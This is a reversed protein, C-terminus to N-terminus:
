NFLRDELLIGWGMFNYTVRDAMIICYYNSTYGLGFKVIGFM